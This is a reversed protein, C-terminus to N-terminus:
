FSSLVFMRSPFSCPVHLSLGSPQYRACHHKLPPSCSAYYIHLQAYPRHSLPSTILISYTGTGCPLQTALKIKTQVQFLRALRGYGVVFEHRKSTISSLLCERSDQERHQQFIPNDSGCQFLPGLTTPGIRAKTIGTSSSVEIDGFYDSCPLLSSCSPSRYRDGLGDECPREAGEGEYHSQFSVVGINMHASPDRIHSTVPTSRYAYGAAERTLNPM